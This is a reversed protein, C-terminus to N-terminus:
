FSPYPASVSRIFHLISVNVVDGPKIGYKMEISSVFRVSSIRYIEKSFITFKYFDIFHILFLFKNSKEVMILFFFLEFKLKFSIQSTSLVLEAVCTQICVSM